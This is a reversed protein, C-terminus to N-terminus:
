SDATRMPFGYGCRSCRVCLHESIVGGLLNKEIWEQCPAKAEMSLVAMEHFVMTMASSPSECKPCQLAEGTRFATLGMAGLTLPVEGPCERQARKSMSWIECRTCRLNDVQGDPEPHELDPEWVHGYEDSM